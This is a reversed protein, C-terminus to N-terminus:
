GVGLAKALWQRWLPALTAKLVIDLVFLALSWALCLRFGRGNWKTRRLLRAFFVHAMAIAGCVFGAVRAYSWIPWGVVGALDPDAGLHVLAGVYYNMYGLLLTGLFLGGLGGTVVSIGLTLGYHLFHQPLFQRPSGEAGIGTRIYAFMEDRYAPGHFVSLSAPEYARITFQVTAVSVLLAWFLMHRVAAGLDSRQLDQYLVWYAAGAQVTAVVWPVPLLVFGTGLLAAVALFLYAKPGTM